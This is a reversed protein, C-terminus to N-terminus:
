AVFGVFAQYRIVDAVISHSYLFLMLRQFFYTSSVRFAFRGTRSYHYLFQTGFQLIMSLHNGQQIPSLKSSDTIRHLMYTKACM